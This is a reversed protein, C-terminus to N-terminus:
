TGEAYVWQGTRMQRAVRAARAPTQKAWLSDLMAASAEIYSGARVMELTHKFQLFKPMGMQFAMNLLAAKRVDDLDQTWPLARALANIRDDIDNNLLYTIEDPRLGAGAVRSDVLRGVGITAYGLHDPYVCARTDEDGRLQRNLEAKM